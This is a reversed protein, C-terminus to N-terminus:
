LVTEEEPRIPLVNINFGSDHDITRTVSMQSVANPDFLKGIDVEMGGM